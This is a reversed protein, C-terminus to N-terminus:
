EGHEIRWRWQAHKVMRLTLWEYHRRQESQESRWEGRKNELHKRLCQEYEDTTMDYRERSIM